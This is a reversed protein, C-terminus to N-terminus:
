VSTQKGFNSFSSETADYVNATVVSPPIWPYCVLHGETRGDMSVQHMPRELIPSEIIFNVIEGDIFVKVKGSNRTIFILCEEEPNRMSCFKDEHSPPLAIEVYWSPKNNMLSSMERFLGGGHFLKRRIHFSLYMDVSPDEINRYPGGAQIPAFEPNVRPEFCDALWNQEQMILGKILFLLRM